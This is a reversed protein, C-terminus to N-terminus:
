FCWVIARYNRFAPRQSNDLHALLNKRIEFGVTEAIIINKRDM